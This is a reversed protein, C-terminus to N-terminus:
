IKIKKNIFHIRFLLFLVLVGTILAGVKFWFDILLSSKLAEVWVPNSNGPSSLGNVTQELTENIRSLTDLASKFDDLQSQYDAVKKELSTLANHKDAIFEDYHGSKSNLEGKFAEFEDNVSQQKEEIDAIAIGVAKIVTQNSKPLQKSLNNIDKEYKALASQAEKNKTEWGAKALRILENLREEASSKEEKLAKGIQASYNKKAIKTLLKEVKEETGNVLEQASKVQQRVKSIGSTVAKDFTLVETDIKLQAHGIALKNQQAENEAETTLKEIVELKENIQNGLDNVSFVKWGMLLLVFVLLVCVLKFIWSQYFTEQIRKIALYKQFEKFDTDNFEFINENNVAILSKGSIPSNSTKIEGNTRTQFYGIILLLLGIGALVFVTLTPERNSTIDVIWKDINVGSLYLIFAYGILLVGIYKFTLLQKLKQIASSNAKILLEKGNV